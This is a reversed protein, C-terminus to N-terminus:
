ITAVSELEAEIKNRTERLEADSQPTGRNQGFSVSTFLLVFAVVALVFRNIM